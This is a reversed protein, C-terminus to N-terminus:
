ENEIVGGAEDGVFVAEGEWIIKKNNTKEGEIVWAICSKGEYKGHDKKAKLITQVKNVLDVRQLNVRNKLLEKEFNNLDFEITSKRENYYPLKHVFLQEKDTYVGKIDLYDLFMRKFQSDSEAEEVYDKSKERAYFKSMMMEEFEKAKMRPLWVKAQSIAVDYFLKPNMLSAGDIWIKRKITQDKEPVNLHVYYRDAGYEEIKEITDNSVQTTISEFIGIWNFLGQINRHSYGTLEHLKNVGFKKDTKRTTTGKKSREKVDDDATEAIRSIFDDIQQDTWDSNKVLVGAIATCYEDRSGASPYIITLAASLAAKGVDILLNGQYERIEEFKEWRVNTKSKSHLSGPVITYRKKETRLECVMAGHPFAKYDKEFEDPLKFQKFPIKNKNSWLYHSTPNGDRGFIAGCDKVYYSVFKKVFDNDIDLDVDHDLRLAIEATEYDRKWIDKEIKFNEETYGKAKPKGKLCPIIVRGLDLWDIYDIPEKNM